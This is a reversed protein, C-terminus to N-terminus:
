GAQRVTQDGFMGRPLRVRIPFPIRERPRRWFFIICCPSYYYLLTTLTALPTQAAKLRPILGSLLMLVGTTFFLYSMWVSFSAWRRMTEDLGAKAGIAEDLTSMRHVTAKIFAVGDEGALQTHLRWCAIAFFGFSFAQVFTRCVYACTLVAPAGGGM